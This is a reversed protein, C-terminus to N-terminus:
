DARDEAEFAATTTTDRGPGAAEERGEEFRGRDSRGQASGAEERDAETRGQAQGRRGAEASRAKERGAKGGTEAAAASGNGDRGAAERHAQRCGRRGTQGRRSKGGGTEPKREQRNERRGHGQRTSGVFHYRGALIRGADIRVGQIHVVGTGVRDRPRAPGRVGGTDQRREGRPGRSWRPSWRWGSSGRARCSGWSGRWPETIRRRTRGCSYVSM